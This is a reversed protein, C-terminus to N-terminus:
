PKAFEAEDIKDFTKADLLEAEMVEKGDRYAKV